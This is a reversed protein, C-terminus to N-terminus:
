GSDNKHDNAKNPTIVDNTTANVILEFRVGLEEKKIPKVYNEEKTPRREYSRHYPDNAMLKGTPSQQVLVWHWGGTLDAIIPVGQKLASLAEEKSANRVMVNKIGYRIGIDQNFQTMSGPDHLHSVIRSIILRAETNEDRSKRADEIQKNLDTLVQRYRPKDLSFLTRFAMARSAGLCFSGDAEDQGFHQRNTTQRWPNNEGSNGQLDKKTVPYDTYSLKIGSQSEAVDKLRKLFEENLRKLIGRKLRKLSKELTQYELFVEGNIAEAIDDNFEEYEAEYDLHEVEEPFWDSEDEEFERDAIDDAGLYVEDCEYDQTMESSLSDERLFPIVEHSSLSQLFTRVLKNQIQKWKQALDREEMEILRGGLEPHLSHFVLDTLKKEDTIGQRHALSIAGSVKGAAVFDLFRIAEVGLPSLIWAVPQRRRKSALKYLDSAYNVWEIAKRVRGFNTDRTEFKVLWRDKKGRETDVNFRGMADSLRPNYQNSLLDRGSIINLLWDHITPSANPDNAYGNVFFPSGRKLPPSMMKLIVDDRVIKKFLEQQKNSLLKKYMSSFSTRSMLRFAFKPPHNQVDTDHGRKIYYIVIQLFSRLNELQTAPIDVPKVAKLINNATNIVFSAVSPIEHDSLYSEFLHLLFGESSQIYTEWTLDKIEVELWENTKLKTERKNEKTRPDCYGRTVGTRLHEINFPFSRRGSTLLPMKNMSDTMEVAKKIAAELKIWKRQWETEFEIRGDTESELTLDKTAVLFDCLGYKRPLPSSSKGDTRFIKNGTDFEFKMFPLASQEQAREFVYSDENEIYNSKIGGQIDSFSEVYLESEDNEYNSIRIESESIFEEGIAEEEEFEEEDSKYHFEEMESSRWGDEFAELFPSELQFGTAPVRWQAIRAEDALFEENLFPSELEQKPEYSDFSNQLPDSSSSM